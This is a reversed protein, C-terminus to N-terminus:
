SSVKAHGMLKNLIAVGAHVLIAAMQTTAPKNTKVLTLWYVSM